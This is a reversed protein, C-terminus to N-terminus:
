RTAECFYVQHTSEIRGFRATYAKEIREITGKGLFIDRPIGEGRAGSLKVDKLFDWLSRHAITYRKEMLSSIDYEKELLRKITNGGTFRSSSLEVRKGLETKLVERLEWFTDPGYISVALMGKETLMTGFLRLAIDLRDLWQFSANSTILDYKEGASLSECDATRFRVNANKIKERAVGIMLESMDLATLEAGPFKRNLLLTYNGTGCGVELIKNFVGHLRSALLRACEKQVVAHKDYNEANHSFNKTVTEKRTYM